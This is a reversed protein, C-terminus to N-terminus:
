YQGEASEELPRDRASDILRVVQMPPGPVEARLEQGIANWIWGDAFDYPVVIDASIEQGVSIQDRGQWRSQSNVGIAQEPALKSRISQIQSLLVSEKM